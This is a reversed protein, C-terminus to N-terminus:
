LKISWYFCHRVRYEIVALYFRKDTSNGANYMEHNLATVEYIEYIFITVHLGM